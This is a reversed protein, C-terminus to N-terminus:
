WGPNQVLNKNILLDNTPIGWVFKPNDAAINITTYEAGTLVTAANQPTRGNFGLHWRELDNLRFGEFALERTREDRIDQVLAAGTSTTAVVGRAARLANLQTQAAAYNPAAEAAILYAEAIRFVKPEHAYNTVATTFYAPNGPYKNVLVLTYPNGAIQCAKSAFYVSKRLDGTPFLNVAATTPIFDPDYKATTSQYGLYIANTNPLEVTSVYMQMISEQLGDTAWYASIGAATNLLPYKGGSILTMAAAYAGANDHMYLRVRAELALACDNSLVRSGQTGLAAKYPAVYVNDVGGPSAQLPTSIALSAAYYTKANAIDSLIQDYVAKVTARAPAGNLDFETVLPVGLDTAATATEYAKAWRTVLAHYYIARGLYADAYYLNYQAKELPSVPTISKYGAIATNVNAISSYYGAWMPALTQDDAGFVSGWRHPFGNRNGYDTGANLQDAQVDSYYMYSGYQRAKLNTHLGIDWNQADKVTQFATSIPVANYPVLDLKKCSTIAMLVTIGATFCINIKKM